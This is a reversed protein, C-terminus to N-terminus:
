PEIVSEPEPAAQRELISERYAVSRARMIAGLPRLDETAHWPDFSLSEVTDEIERGRPTGVDQRPLILRAIEVHPTRDEPWVVSADEIPTTADDLFLQARLSYTIPDAKLREVLDNRLQDSGQSSSSRPPATGSGVPFLALKAATAGFRIPAATHFTTTAMSSVKPTGALAKLIQFGRRLGYARFLRPLLLAPQRRAAIRVFAVFEDPDKFAIAPMQIFLFDQTKRDELGPIIKKGPVGVLKVAIGRVDTVGDPQRDGSGNSFRVYAPWSADTAFPGVRFQDPVSGVVVRGVAGVHQKVHLARGRAGREARARQMQRLDGAFRNFRAEEDPAITEHFGM